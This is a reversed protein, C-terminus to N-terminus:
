FKKHVRIKKFTQNTIKIVKNKHQRNQSIHKLIHLRKYITM